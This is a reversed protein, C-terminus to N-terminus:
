SIFIIPFTIRTFSIRQQLKKTSFFMILFVNIPYFSLLFIQGPCYHLFKGEVPVQLGFPQSGSCYFVQVDNFRLENQIWLNSHTWEPHENAFYRCFIIKWKKVVNSLSKLIFNRCCKATHLANAFIILSFIKRLYNNFWRKCLLL